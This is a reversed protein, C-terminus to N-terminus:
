VQLFMLVVRLFVLLNKVLVVEVFGLDQPDIAESSISHYITHVVKGDASSFLYRVAPM